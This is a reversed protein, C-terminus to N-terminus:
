EWIIKLITWDRIQEAAVEGGIEPRFNEVYNPSIIWCETFEKGDLMPRNNESLKLTPRDTKPTLEVKLFDSAARLTNEHGWFSHIEASVPFDGLEQTVIKVNGRILPFPFSNGVLIEAQAYNKDIGFLAKDKPSLQENNTPYTKFYPCIKNYFETLNKKANDIGPTKEDFGGHNIDNRISALDAFENGIANIEESLIEGMRKFQPSLPKPHAHKEPTENHKKRNREYTVVASISKSILLRVAKEIKGKLPPFRRKAIFSITTEQLLTYGQQILDHEICWLVANFVNELSDDKYCSFENEILKQYIEKFPYLKSDIFEFRGTEKLVSPVDTKKIGKGRSIAIDHTLNSIKEAADAVKTAFKRLKRSSETNNKKLENERRNILKTLESANGSSKLLYGALSWDNLIFFPTLDFVPAVDKKEPKAEWAGYLCKEIEVNKTVKLFNFLITMLVPLCRLSHTIDFVLKSGEPIQNCICKFIDWLEKEEQGTSIDICEPNPYIEHFKFEDCLNDWHTEKAEKTCFILYRDCPNYQATATQIFKVRHSIKESGFDYSIKETGFYYHIPIYKGTGLFSVFIKSSNPTPLDSM